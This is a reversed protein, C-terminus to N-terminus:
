APVHVTDAVAAEQWLDELAAKNWRALEQGPDLSLGELVVTGSFSRLAALVRALDRGGRGLPLHPRRGDADSLHVHVVSRLRSLFDVEDVGWPIHAVDLVAGVNPRGVDALLRNVDEPSVVLEGPRPEMHEVGVTLSAAAAHDAIDQLSAVVDPWRRDDAVPATARGPHVVLLSARLAAALEVCRHLTEMSARRIGDVESAPNLDWSLAHLTLVLGAAQARDALLRPDIGDRWLGYAWLEVGDYGLEAAVQLAESATCAWVVPASLLVRFPRPAGPREVQQRLRLDSRRPPGPRRSAIQGHVIDLTTRIEAAVRFPKTLARGPLSAVFQRPRRAFEATMALPKSLARRVVAELYHEVFQLAAVEALRGCRACTVRAPGAPEGRVHHWTTRRCQPCRLRIHWRRPPSSAGRADM